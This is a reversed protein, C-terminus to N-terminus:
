KKKIITLTGFKGTTLQPKNQWESVYGNSIKLKDGVNVEDIQNNWLSLEIEGSDDEVVATAVRGTRGYKQFERPEKIEKVKVEIDVNGMQPKLDSIKM